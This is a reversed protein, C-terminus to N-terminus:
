GEGGHGHNADLRRMLEDYVDTSLEQNQQRTLRTLKERANSRSSGNSLANEGSLWDRLADFHTRAITRSQEVTVPPAKAYPTSTSSSSTGIGAQNQEGGREGGNGRSSSSEGIRSAQQQQQQMAATSSGGGGGNMRNDRDNSNMANNNNNNSKYYNDQQQQQNLNPRSMGGTTNQQSRLSM